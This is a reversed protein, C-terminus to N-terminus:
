IRKLILVAVGLCIFLDALNFVPWFHLDIFDVVRGQIIRDLINALGGGIILGSAIGGKTWFFLISILVLNVLLWWNSPLFGFAIGQNYVVLDPWYKIVIIKSIQDLLIAGAIVLRRSM